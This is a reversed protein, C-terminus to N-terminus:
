RLCMVFVPHGRISDSREAAGSRAATHSPLWVSIGHEVSTPESCQMYALLDTLVALMCTLSNFCSAGRTLMETHKQHVTTGQHREARSKVGRIEPWRGGDHSDAVEATEGTVM